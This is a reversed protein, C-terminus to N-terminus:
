IHKDTIGACHAENVSHIVANLPGCLSIDGRELWGLFSFICACYIRENASAQANCHKYYSILGDIM